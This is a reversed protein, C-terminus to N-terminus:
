YNKDLNEFYSIQTNKLLKKCLNRQTSRTKKTVIPQIKRFYINRFISRKMIAKPLEKTMFLTENARIYRKKVPVHRNFINFITSKYMGFNDMNSTDAIIESRFKTVIDSRFKANDFNPYDRYAVIKPKLKQFGMIFATM